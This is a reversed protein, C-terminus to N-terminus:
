ANKDNEQYKRVTNWVKDIGSETYDVILAIDLLNEIMKEYEENHEVIDIIANTIIICATVKKLIEDQRNRTLLKM